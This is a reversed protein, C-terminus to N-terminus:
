ELGKTVKDELAMQEDQAKSYFDIANHIVQNLLRKGVPSINSFSFRQRLDELSMQGLYPAIATNFFPSAYVQVMEFDLEISSNHKIAEDLANKLKLGGERSVATKGVIQSVDIKM